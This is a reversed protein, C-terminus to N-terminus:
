LASASNGAVRGSFATFNGAFRWGPHNVVSIVSICPLFSLTLEVMAM